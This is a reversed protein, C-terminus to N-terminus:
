SYYRGFAEARAFKIDSSPQVHEWIFLAESICELAFDALMMCGHKKSIADFQSCLRRWELKGLLRTLTDLLCCSHIARAETLTLPGRERRAGRLLVPLDELREADDLSFLHEFQRVSIGASCPQLLRRGRTELVSNLQVALSRFLAYGSWNM